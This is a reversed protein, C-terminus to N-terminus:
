AMLYFGDCVIAFPKIAPLGKGKFVSYAIKSVRNIGVLQHMAAQSKGNITYLPPSIFEAPFSAEKEGV